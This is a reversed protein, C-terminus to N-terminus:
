ELVNQDNEMVSHAFVFGLDSSFGGVEPRQLPQFADMIRAAM